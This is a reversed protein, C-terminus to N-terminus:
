PVLKRQVGPWASAAADFLNKPNERFKVLSEERAFLLLKQEHVAFFAPNGELPFMGWWARMPAFMPSSAWARSIAFFDIPAATTASPQMMSTRYPRPGTVLYPTAPKFSEGRESSRAAQAWFDLTQNALAAYAASAARAYGFAATTYSRAFRATIETDVHGM